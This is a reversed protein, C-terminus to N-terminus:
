YLIRESTTTKGADIHAIIGINRIFSLAVDRSDAEKCSGLEKLSNKENRNMIKMKRKEITLPELKKSGKQSDAIEM